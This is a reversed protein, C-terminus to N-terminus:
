NEIFSLGQIIVNVHLGLFNIKVDAARERMYDDDMASFMQAFNDGTTAVAYEANVGQSKIINEVSENYGDDDMMWYYDTLFYEYALKLGTYFGGAGGTNVSKNILYVSVNNISQLFLINDGDMRKKDVPNGFKEYLFNETNDTSANNVILLNDPVVTQALVAEICRCLDDKRNYTVIITTVSM